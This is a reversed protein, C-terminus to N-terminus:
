SITTRRGLGLEVSRVTDRDVVISREENGVGVVV